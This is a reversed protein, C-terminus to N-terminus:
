LVGCLLGAWRDGTLVYGLAHFAWGAFALALLVALNVLPVPDRVFPRFPLLLVVTGLSLDSHLVAHHAPQFINGQFIQGPEFFHTTLWHVTWLDVLVDLHGLVHTRGLAVLPRTAAISLAVFFLAALAERGLAHKDRM